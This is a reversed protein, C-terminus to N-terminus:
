RKTCFTSSRDTPRRSSVPFASPGPSGRGYDIRRDGVFKALDREVVHQAEHAEDPRDVVLELKEFRISACSPRVM